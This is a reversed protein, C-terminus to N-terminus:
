AITQHRPLYKILCLGRKRQVRSRLSWWWPSPTHDGCWCFGQSKIRCFGTKKRDLTLISRRYEPCGVPSKLWPRPRPNDWSCPQSSSNGCSDGNGNVLVKDSQPIRAGGRHSPKSTTTQRAQLHRSSSETSCPLVRANMKPSSNSEYFTM